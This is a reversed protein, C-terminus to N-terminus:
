VPYFYTEREKLICLYATWFKYYLGMSDLVWVEKAGDDKCTAGM